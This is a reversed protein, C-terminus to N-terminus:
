FRIRAGTWAAMIPHFAAGLTRHLTQYAASAFLETSASDINQVLAVAYSQATDGNFIVEDQNAFDISLATKGFPFVDRQYGLKTYFLNPSLRQWAPRSLSSGAVGGSMTLSLGSEHLISFSGDFHRSGNPSWMPLVLGARIPMSVVSAPAGRPFRGARRCLWSEGDPQSHPPDCRRRGVAAIVRFEGFSVAWACPQTTPARRRRLIDFISVRGLGPTDYRIRDDRGLGGFNNFVSGVAPGFAGDPSMVRRGGAGGRSWRRAGKHRFAFGGDQEAIGVYHGIFTGSLDFENTLYSATSGSVWGRMAGTSAPSSCSPRVSRRFCTEPPKRCTKRSRGAPEVLEPPDGDRSQHRADDGANGGAKESWAFDPRPFSTTSM